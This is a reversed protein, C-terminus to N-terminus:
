TKKEIVKEIQKKEKNACGLVAILTTLIFIGRIDFKM